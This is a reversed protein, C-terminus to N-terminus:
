ILKNYKSIILSCFKYKFTTFIKLSYFLVFNNNQGYNDWLGMSIFNWYFVVMLCDLFVMFVIIIIEVLIYIFIMENVIKVMVNYSDNLKDLVYYGWGM